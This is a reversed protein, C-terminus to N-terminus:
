IFQLPFFLIGFYGLGSAAHHGGAVAGFFDAGVVIRLVAHGVVAKFAVVFVEVEKYSIKELSLLCAETVEPQNYNVLVISVLPM